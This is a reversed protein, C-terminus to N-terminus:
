GRWGIMVEAIVEILVRRGVGEVTTIGGQDRLIIPKTLHCRHHRRNWEEMTGLVWRHLLGIIVMVMVVVVEWTDLLLVVMM